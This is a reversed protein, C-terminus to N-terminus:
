HHWLPEFSSLIQIKTKTSIKSLTHGFRAQFGCSVSVELNEVLQIVLLYGYVFDLCGVASYRLTGEHLFGDDLVRAAGDDGRHVERESFFILM